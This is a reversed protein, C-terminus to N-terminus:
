VAPAWGRASALVGGTPGCIRDAQLLTRLADKGESSLHLGLLARAVAARVPEELGPRALIGDPPIPATVHLIRLGDAVAGLARRLDQQAAFADHAAAETVYCACLDAEGAAVATAARQTSGHFTEAALAARPDLGARDFELRPFHYGSASQRDVWAARAGRLDALGAVHSLSQVLLAARYTLTGGRQPIGLLAAGRAAARAHLLPPLWALDLRGDVLGACLEEPTDCPQAAVPRGLQQGLERVLRPLGLAVSPQTRNAGFSLPAAPAPM